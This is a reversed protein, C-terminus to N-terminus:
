GRLATTPQTRAARRAPVFAALLAVVALLAAAIAFPLPDKPTLGFLLTAASKAAFYALALGATLGAVILWASERMFMGIVQSTAAGLAIRIGIESRRREIVYSMVGYLGVAALLMAIAGFFGSLTAMLRERVLSAGVIQDVRSFKLLIRPHIDRALKTIAATVDTNARVVLTMSPSTEDEQSHAFFIVPGTVETLSQYKIDHVVGIITIPPDPDGVNGPLHFERGVPSPTNFYAQGFAETVIAVRPGTPTDREDFNRGAIIPMKMVDFYHPGVRTINPYPKQPKGDLVVTQNWGSGTLPVLYASDASVVGPLAQVREVLDQQFRLTQAPPVNAHRYDIDVEAVGAATFGPDINIINRLTGGFLLAGTILVLSLALQTVVLARRLNFRDRGDTLSRGSARMVQSPSTRTARFAPALGFLLCTAAALVATFGLVMWDLGLDVFVRPGTPGNLFRVLLRSLAGALLAGAVAGGTAIVLSEVMLQRILRGRSAGIALRVAMESQRVSARALMLNALNGCAILLVMGAIALLLKLPESYTSRLQSVGAGVPEAKLTFATYGAADVERYGPPVTAAFLAPSQQALRASMATATQHDDLRAMVSLWWVDPQDLASPTRVLPEACIPLAVDFSRGVDFGFFSSESVGAVQVTAGNLAITRGVIASDAGFKNRWFAYNLVVAPTGCGRTDDSPLLLRGAAPQVGAAAFLGGSVFLGRAPQSEGGDALDVSATGWAFLRGLGEPEQSLREFLPHTMAARSSIFAGTRGKGHTDIQYEVLRDPRPLPLSRLEVANILQFIAANAGIGLALSLLAVLTFSPTQRLVRVAYRLDQWAAEFWNISNMDYIDERILTPNGLKRYAAARAEDPSLGRALNDDIEIELHALLERAREADWRERRFYRQWSV